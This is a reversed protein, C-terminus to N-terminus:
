SQWDHGGALPQQTVFQEAPLEMDWDWQSGGTVRMPCDKGMVPSEYVCNEAQLKNYNTPTNEKQQRGRLNSASPEPARAASLDVIQPPPSAQSRLILCFDM